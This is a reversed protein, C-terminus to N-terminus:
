SRICASAIGFVQLMSVTKLWSSRNSPTDDQPFVFFELPM